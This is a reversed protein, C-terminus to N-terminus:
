RSHRRRRAFMRTSRLCPYAYMHMHPVYKLDVFTVCHPQVHGLLLPPSAPGFRVEISSPGECCSAPMNYCGRGDAGWMDGAYRPSPLSAPQVHRTARASPFSASMRHARAVMRRARDAIGKARSRGDGRLRVNLKEIRGSRDLARQARILMQSVRSFMRDAHSRM